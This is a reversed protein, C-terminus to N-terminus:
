TLGRLRLLDETTAISVEMEWLQGESTEIGTPHYGIVFVATSPTNPRLDPWENAFVEVAERAEEDTCLEITIGESPRPITILKRIM